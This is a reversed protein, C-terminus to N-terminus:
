IALTIEQQFEYGLSIDAGAWGTADGGTKRVLNGRRRLFAQKGIDLLCFYKGQLPFPRKLAGKEM